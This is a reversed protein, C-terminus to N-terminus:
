SKVILNEDNQRVNIENMVELDLGHIHIRGRAAIDVQRVELINEIGNQRVRVPIVIGNTLVVAEVEGLVNVITGKIPLIVRIGNVPPILVNREVEHGIGHIIGHIGNQRPIGDRVELDDEVENGLKM